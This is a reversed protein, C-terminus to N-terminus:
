DQADEQSIIARIRGIATHYGAAYGIDHEPGTNFEEHPAFTKLNILSEELADRRATALAAKVAADVWESYDLREKRLQDALVDADISDAYGPADEGGMIAVALTYARAEAREARAFNRGNQENAKDLFESLDDREKEVAELRARLATNDETLRRIRTSPLQEIMELRIKDM